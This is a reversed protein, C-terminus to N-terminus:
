PALWSRHLQQILAYEDRKILKWKGTPIFDELHLVKRQHSQTIELTPLFNCQVCEWDSIIPVTPHCWNCLCLLCKVPIVECHVGTETQGKVAWFSLFFLSLRSLCLRLTLSTNAAKDLSSCQFICSLLASCCSRSCWYTVTNVCHSPRGVLCLITFRSIFCEYLFPSDDLDLQVAKCVSWPETGDDSLNSDEPKIKLLALSKFSVGRVARHHPLPHPTFVLACRGFHRILAPGIQQVIMPLQHPLVCSMSEARWHAGSGSRSFQALKWTFCQYWNLLCPLACGACCETQCHLTCDM